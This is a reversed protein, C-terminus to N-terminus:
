GGPTPLKLNEIFQNIGAPTRDNYFLMVARDNYFLMVALANKLDEDSDVAMLFKFEDCGEYGGPTIEFDYGGHQEIFDRTLKREEPKTNGMHVSLIM